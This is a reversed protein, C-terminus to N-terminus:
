SSCWARFSLVVEGLRSASASSISSLTSDMLSCILIKSRHSYGRIGPSWQNWRSNIINPPVRPGSWTLARGRLVSRRARRFHSIMFIHWICTFSSLDRCARIRLFRFGNPLRLLQQRFCLLEGCASVPLAPRSAGSCQLASRSTTCRSVRNRQAIPQHRFATPFQPSCLFTM